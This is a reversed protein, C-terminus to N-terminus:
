TTLERRLKGRKKYREKSSCRAAKQEFHQFKHRLSCHRGFMLLLNHRRHQGQRTGAFEPSKDSIYLEFIEFSSVESVFSPPFTFRSSISHCSM